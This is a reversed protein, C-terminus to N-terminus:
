IMQFLHFFLLHYAGRANLTNVPYHFSIVTTAASIIRVLAIRKSLPPEEPSGKKTCFM